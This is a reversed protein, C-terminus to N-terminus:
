RRREGQLRRDAFLIGAVSKADAIRGNEVLAVADSLPLTLVESHQEEPGHPVRDVPQCGTALYITTVSDTMGPSPYIETLLELDGAVLGVEEVLERKATEVTPEGEIDRMGAPIELIVRDYPPRYQSVLAVHPVGDVEGGVIPVAAVAGPSRVVDREFREGDPGEYSAVVVHWIHGQHVLRDGLHRFEGVNM